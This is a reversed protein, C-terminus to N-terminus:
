ACECLKRIYEDANVRAKPSLKMPEKEVLTIMVNLVTSLADSYASTSHAISPDIARVRAHLRGVKLSSM